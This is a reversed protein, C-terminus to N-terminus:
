LGTRDPRTNVHCRGETRLEDDMAAMRNIDAETLRQEPLGEMAEQYDRERQLMQDAFADREAKAGLLAPSVHRVPTEVRRAMAFPPYDSHRNDHRARQDDTHRQLAENSM